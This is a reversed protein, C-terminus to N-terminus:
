TENEPLTQLLPKMAKFRLGWPSDVHKGMFIPHRIGQHREQKRNGRNFLLEGV